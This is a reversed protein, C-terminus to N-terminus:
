GDDYNFLVWVLFGFRTVGWRAFGLNDRVGKGDLGLGWVWLRIGGPIRFQFIWFFGIGGERGREREGERGFFLVFCFFGERGGEGGRLFFVM